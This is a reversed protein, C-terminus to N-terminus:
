KRKGRETLLSPRGDKRLPVVSGSKSGSGSGDSSSSGGVSGSGSGEISAPKENRFTENFRRQNMEIIQTVNSTYKMEELPKPPKAVFMDWADVDDKSPDEVEVKNVEVENVEVETPNSFLDSNSNSSSSSDAEKEM